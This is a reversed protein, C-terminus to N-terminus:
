LRSQLESTHEKSREEMSINPEVGFKVIAQLAFGDSFQFLMSFLAQFVVLTGYEEISITRAVLLLAVFYVSPLINSAFAWAGKGLHESFKVSCQVWEPISLNAEGCSRQRFLSVECDSRWAELGHKKPPSQRWQRQVDPIAARMYYVRDCQTSQTQRQTRSM